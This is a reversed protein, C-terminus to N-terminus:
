LAPWFGMSQSTISRLPSATATAKRLPCSTGTLNDELHYKFMFLFINTDLSYDRQCSPWVTWRVIIMLSQLPKYSTVASLVHSNFSWPSFSYLVLPLYLITCFRSNWIHCTQQTLKCCSHSGACPRWSNPVVCQSPCTLPKTSGPSKYTIAWPSASVGKEQRYLIGM